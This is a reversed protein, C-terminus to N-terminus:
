TCVSTASFVSRAARSCRCSACNPVSVNASTSVDGENGQWQREHDGVSVALTGDSRRVAASLLDDNRDVALRLTTRLRDTDADTIAASGYAAITEAITARSARIAGARDPVLGFLMAVLLITVLIFSLGISVYSRTTLNRLM